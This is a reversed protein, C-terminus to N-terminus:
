HMDTTFARSLCEAHALQESSTRIMTAIFLSTEHASEYIFNILLSKTKNCYLATGKYCVKNYCLNPYLVTM